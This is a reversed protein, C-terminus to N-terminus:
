VDETELVNEIGQGHSEWPKGVLRAPGPWSPSPRNRIKRGNGYGLRAERSPERSLDAKMAPKLGFGAELRMELVKSESMALPSLSSRM